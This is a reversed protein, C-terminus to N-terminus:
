IREYKLIDINMNEHTFSDLKNKTFLKEDVRPFFRDCGYEKPIHTLYIRDAYDISENYVRAGGIIFVEHHKELLLNAIASEFSSYYILNDNTKKIDKSIVINLRNNLPKSGISEFTLRGMIIPRSLTTSKFFRMDEKIRGWPMYGNLGIGYKSDVAAILSIIM